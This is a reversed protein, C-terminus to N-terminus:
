PETVKDASLTRTVIRSCWRQDVSHGLVEGARECAWCTGRELLDCPMPAEGAEDRPHIEPNKAAKWISSLQATTLATEKGNLGDFARLQAM